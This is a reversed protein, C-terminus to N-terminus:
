RGGLYLTSVFASILMIKDKKVVVHIMCYSILVRPTNPNRVLKKRSQFHIKVAEAIM